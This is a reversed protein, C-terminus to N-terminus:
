NEYISLFIWLKVPMFNGDADIASLKEYNIYPNNILTKFKELM